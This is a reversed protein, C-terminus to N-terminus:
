FRRNWEEKSYKERVLEDIQESPVMPLPRQANWAQRIASRLEDEPVRLNTLFDRHSRNLRYDPQRSPMPLVKELLDLDM